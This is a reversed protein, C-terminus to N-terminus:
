PIYQLAPGSNTMQQPRAQEEDQHEARNTTNETAHTDTPIRSAAANGFRYAQSGNGMVTGSPNSAHNESMCQSKWNPPTSIIWTYWTYTIETHVSFNCAIHTWDPPIVILQSIVNMTTPVDALNSICVKSLYVLVFSTEWWFGPPSLSSHVRWLQIQISILNRTWWEKSWDDPVTLFYKNMFKRFGKKYERPSIMNTCPLYILHVIATLSSSGKWDPSLCDTGFGNKVTMGNPFDSSRRFVRQSRSQLCQVHLLSM